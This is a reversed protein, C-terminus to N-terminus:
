DDIGIPQMRKTGAASQDAVSTARELGVKQFSQRRSGHMYSSVILYTYRFSKDATLRILENRDWESDTESSTRPTGSTREDTRVRAASSGTLKYDILYTNMGECRGRRIGAASVRELHRPRGRRPWPGRSRFRSPWAEARRPAQDAAVAGPKVLRHCPPERARRALAAIDANVSRLGGIPYRLLSM